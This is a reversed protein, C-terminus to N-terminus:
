YSEKINFNIQQQDIVKPSNDSFELDGEWNGANANTADVALITFEVKGNTRDLYTVSVTAILTGGPKVIKFQSTAYVATDSMNVALGTDPDNVTLTFKKTSGANMELITGFDKRVTSMRIV